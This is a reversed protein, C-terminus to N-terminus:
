VLQVLLFLVATGCLTVHGIKLCVDSLEIPCLDTQFCHLLYVTIFSALNTTCMEKVNHHTIFSM